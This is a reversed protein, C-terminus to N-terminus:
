FLSYYISSIFNGQKHWNTIFGNFNDKSMAVDFSASVTASFRGKSWTIEAPTLTYYERDASSDENNTTYYEVSGGFSWNDDISYTSSLAIYDNRERQTAGHVFETFMPASFYWRGVSKSFIPYIREKTLQGSDRYNDGYVYYRFQANLNVWHKDQTLIKNRYLRYTTYQYETHIDGQGRQSASPNNNDGTYDSKLAPVVRISHYKDIKYGMYFYHNTYFGKAGYTPVVGENLYAFSFPSDQLKKLTNSFSFTSTNASGADTSPVTTNTSAALASAMFATLVLGKLFNRM